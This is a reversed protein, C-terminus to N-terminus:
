RYPQCKYLYAVDFVLHISAFVHECTRIMQEWTIEGKKVHWALTHCGHKTMDYVAISLYRNLIHIDICMGIKMGM